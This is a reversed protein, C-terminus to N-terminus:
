AFLDQEGGETSGGAEPIEKDTAVSGESPGRAPEQATEPADGPHKGEAIYPFIADAWGFLVPFSPERGASVSVWLDIAAKLASTRM